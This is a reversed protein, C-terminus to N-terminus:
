RGSTVSLSSPSPQLSVLGSVFSGLRYFSACFCVAVGHARLSDRRRRPFTSIEGRGPAMAPFEGSSGPACKPKELGDATDPLARGALGPVGAFAAVTWPSRLLRPTPCRATAMNPSRRRSLTLLQTTNTWRRRAQEHRLAAQAVPAPGCITGGSRLYAVLAILLVAVTITAYTLLLNNRFTSAQPLRECYQRLAAAAIALECFAEIHCEREIGMLSLPLRFAFLHCAHRAM